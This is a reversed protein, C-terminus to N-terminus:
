SYIHCDQASITYHRLHTCVATRLLYTNIQGKRQCDRDIYKWIEVTLGQRTELFVHFFELCKRGLTLSKCLQRNNPFFTWCFPKYEEEVALLWLQWSWWLIVVGWQGEFHICCPCQDYKCITNLIRLESSLKLQRCQNTTSAM